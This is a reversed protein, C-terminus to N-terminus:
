DDAFTPLQSLGIKDVPFHRQNNSPEVAESIALASPM